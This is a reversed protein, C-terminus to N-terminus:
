LLREKFQLKLITVRVAQTIESFKIPDGSSRLILLGSNIERILGQCDRRLGLTDLMFDLIHEDIAMLTRLSAGNSSATSIYGGSKTSQLRKEVEPREKAKEISGMSVYNHPREPRPGPDKENQRRWRAIRQALTM